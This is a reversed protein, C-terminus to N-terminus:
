EGAFPIDARICWAETTGGAPAYVAILSTCGTFATDSIACNKPLRIQTLGACNRFANAGIATIGESVTVSCLGPKGALAGDGIQTVTQEGIQAPVVLESEEGEYGTLRLTADGIEVYSWGDATGGNSRTRHRSDGSASTEQAHATLSMGPILGLLLSVSMMFGLMRRIMPKNMKM